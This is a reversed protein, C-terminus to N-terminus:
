RRELRPGGADHGNFCIFSLVVLFLDGFEFLGYDFCLLLKDLCSFVVGDGGFLGADVLDLERLHAFVHFHRLSDDVLM